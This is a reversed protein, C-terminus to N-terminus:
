RRILKILKMLKDFSKIWRDHSVYLSVSNVTINIDTLRSVTDISAGSSMPFRTTGAAGARSVNKRQYEQIAVTEANQRRTINISV